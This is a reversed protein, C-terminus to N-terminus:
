VNNMKGYGWKKSCLMYMKYVFNTVDRQQEIVKTQKKIEDTKTGNKVNVHGMKVFDEYKAGKLIIGNRKERLIDGACHWSIPKDWLLSFSSAVNKQAAYYLGVCRKEWCCKMSGKEGMECLNLQNHNFAGAHTCKLKRVRHDTQHNKLMNHM